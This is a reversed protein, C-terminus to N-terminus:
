THGFWSGLRDRYQDVCTAGKRARVRTELMAATADGAAAPALPLPLSGCAEDAEAADIDRWIGITHGPWVRGRASSCNQGTGALAPPSSASRHRSMDAQWPVNGYFDRWTNNICQVGVIVKKCM